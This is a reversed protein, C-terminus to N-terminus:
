CLRLRRWWRHKPTTAATIYQGLAGYNGAYYYNQQYRVIQVGFKTVHKGHQWILTTAMTLCTTLFTKFSVPVALMRKSAPSTSRASGQTHRSPPSAWPRTARCDSSGPDTPAGNFSQVRSMGARGQNVLSSASTRVWNVVGSHFPYDNNAQPLYHSPRGEARLRLRRRRLLPVDAFDKPGVTWDVRLDGQNNRVVASSPAGYDNRDPTNADARATPRPISRPRAFLYAAVPSVFRVQNNVYPSANTYGGTPNTASVAPNYLQIAGNSTALLESFDCTTVGGNPTCTRM